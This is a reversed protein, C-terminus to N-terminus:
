KIERYWVDSIDSIFAVPPTSNLQIASLIDISGAGQSNPNYGYGHATNELAAKVELPSWDPNKQLLLAAAGAVHPTAMSTGSLSIHENDICISEPYSSGWRPACINVGPALIDPKNYIYSPGRSSFDAIINSDVIVSMNVTVSSNEILALLYEGDSKSISIAPIDSLNVLNGKFNGYYNNYIIAGSADADYANKVKSYFTINGRKILAIKGTFDKGIFDEPLGLNAYELESVLGGEPTLASHTLALSDIGKNSESVISLSSLRNRSSDNEKYTAGVTLAKRACSPSDITRNSPGSNGAAVVVLVGSDVANDVAQSLADDPDGYAGLSLSIIDAHDVVANDIAAIIDDEEGSGTSDLVKYALLKADPAVGKVTGNGAAIGACHTGHGQDDMPNQDNSVFDYGSIVKSCNSLTLNVTGNIIMDISFGWDTVIHDTVLNLKITDGPASPSWIDEFYGSYENIIDDSSNKVYLVDWGYEVGMKSFHVAINTFGPMNITWTKNESNNYPHNSELYYPVINGELGGVTCNGLDPHTYDIGTDIIAITVNKGTINRGQSDQLKWVDTAGILPVSESLLMHYEKIPYIKKVSDLSSIELIEEESINEISIGNFINFLERKIKKDSNKSHLKQLIKIHSAGIDKKHDYVSKSIEKLSMGNKENEIEKKYLLLPKEKFQIIYGSQNLYGIFLKKDESDLPFTVLGDPYKKQIYTSIEPSLHFKNIDLAGKAIKEDRISHKEILGTGILGLFLLFFLLIIPIIFKRSM